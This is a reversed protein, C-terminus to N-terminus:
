INTRETRSVSLHVSTNSPEPVYRTNKDTRPIRLMVETWRGYESTITLSGSMQEALKRSIALGLGTGKTEATLVDGIQYFPQGLSAIKDAPVGIGNDRVLLQLADDSTQYILVVVRAGGCKSFKIANSLLNLIIQLLARRDLTVNISRPIVKARVSVSRTNSIPRITRLAEIVVERIDFSELRVLPEGAELRSMDLIDNIIALLHTGATKINALYDRQKATPLSEGTPTLLFDSFGIVANLPTRLEHSMSSIFRTKACNAVKLQQLRSNLESTRELVLQELVKRAEILEAELRSQESIDQVISVIHTPNGSADDVVSVSLLVTVAHGDSRVYNKVRSYAKIEGRRIRENYLEADSREHPETLEVSNKALIEERSYRFLKCFFDNVAIWEGNLGRIAVGVAAHDFVAKLSEASFQMSFGVSNKSPYPQNLLANVYNKNEREFV